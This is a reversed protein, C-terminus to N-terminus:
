LFDIAIFHTCCGVPHTFFTIGKGSKCINGSASSLKGLQKGNM